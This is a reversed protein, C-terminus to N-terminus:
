DLYLLVVTTGILMVVANALQVVGSGAFTRIQEVDSTLRTVLQGTQVRDYYSFSLREIREFLADRLDYAVGQSAREALYGQLFTFM